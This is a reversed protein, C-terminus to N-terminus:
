CSESRLHVAFEIYPPLDTSTWIDVRQRWQVQLNLISVTLKGQLGRRVIVFPVDPLCISAVRLWKIRAMTCFEATSLRAWASISATMPCSRKGSKSSRADSGYQSATKASTSLHATGKGIQSIEARVSHRKLQHGHEGCGKGM